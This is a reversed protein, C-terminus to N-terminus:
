GVKGVPPDDEREVGDEPVVAHEVSITRTDEDIAYRVTIRGLSLQLLPRDFSTNWAHALGAPASGAIEAIDELMERLKAQADQPVQRLKDAAAMSVRVRFFSRTIWDNWSSRASM